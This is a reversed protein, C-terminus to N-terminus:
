STSAKDPKLIEEITFSKLGSSRRDNTSRVVTCCDNNKVRPVNTLDYNGRVCLDRPYDQPRLSFLPSTLYGLSFDKISEYKQTATQHHGIQPISFLLPFHLNSKKALKQTGNNVIMNSSTSPSERRTSSFNISEPNATNCEENQNSSASNGNHQLLHDNPTLMGSNRLIRNISSISPIRFKFAVVKFDCLMFFCLIM